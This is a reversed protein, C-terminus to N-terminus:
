SVEREYADYADETTEAYDEGYMVRVQTMPRKSLISVLHDAREGRWPTILIVGTVDGPKEAVRYALEEASYSTIDLANALQFLIGTYHRDGMGKAYYHRSSGAGGISANLFFDYEINKEKLQEIVERAVSFCPEVVDGEAGDTDLVISVSMQATHDYNRVMLEGSRASHTWSIAKMPERGTYERFGTILVPDEFIFRRVSYDGIIGGVQAECEASGIRVPYVSIYRFFIYEQRHEKFGLFDGTEINVSGFRYYGRRTIEIDIYREITQRPLLFASGMVRYADPPATQTEHESVLHMSDPLLVAYRVFPRVLITTNTIKLTLRVKQGPEVATTEPNIDATIGGKARRELIFQILLVVIVAVVIIFIKM